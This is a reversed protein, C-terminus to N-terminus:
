TTPLTLHTYSVAESVDELEYNGDKDLVHVAIDTEKPSEAQVRVCMGKPVEIVSGSTIEQTREATDTVTVIGEGVVEFSMKKAVERADASTKSVGFVFMQCLLIGAMLSAAAKKGRHMKTM